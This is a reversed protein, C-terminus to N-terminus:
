ARFGLSFAWLYEYCLDIDLWFVCMRDRYWSQVVLSVEGSNCLVGSEDLDLLRVCCYARNFRSGWQGCLLTGEFNCNYSVVSDLFRVKELPFRLWWCLWQKSLKLSSFLQVAELFVEVSVCRLIYVILYLSWLLFLFRSWVAFYFSFCTPLKLGDSRCTLSRM